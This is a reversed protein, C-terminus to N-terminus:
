LEYTMDSHWKTTNLTGASASSWYSSDSDRFVVDLEPHDKVHVAWQHVHLRGFYSGYEKLWQAGQHVFNQKRFIVVGREAVYLALEDKQIDSLQSLQVGLVETGICPTM